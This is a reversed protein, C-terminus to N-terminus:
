QLESRCLLKLPNSRPLNAQRMLLALGLGGQHKAGTDLAQQRLEEYREVVDERTGTALLPSTDGTGDDNKKRDGCGASSPARIFRSM